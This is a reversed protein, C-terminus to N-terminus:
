SNGIDKQGLMDFNRGSLWFCGVDGMRFIEGHEFEEGCGRDKNSNENGSYLIFGDETKKYHGKNNGKPATTQEVCM